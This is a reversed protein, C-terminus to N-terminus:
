FMEIFSSFHRFPRGFEKLFKKIEFLEFCDSLLIGEAETGLLAKLGRPSDEFGIVREGEIKFNAIAKQYCEPSPKPQSYHERTIWNPISNLIPHQSRILAIQELPSHTVVCRKIKAKELAILLEEVGPMLLTGEEQLLQFYVRKKEQYLLDWCPEDRQLDPLERYIGEQVGAATYMAHQMYTRKDWKLPFGRASCMKLYAKYHLEETNVLIGDFDFLFLQYHHIWEM